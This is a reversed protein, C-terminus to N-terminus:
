RRRDDPSTLPETKRQGDSVYTHSLKAGNIVVRARFSAAHASRQHGSGSAPTAFAPGALALSALAASMAAAFKATRTATRLM